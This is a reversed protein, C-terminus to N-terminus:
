CTSLRYLAPEVGAERVMGLYALPLTVRSLVTVTLTRIGRETGDGPPPIASVSTKSALAAFRSPELGEQAVM